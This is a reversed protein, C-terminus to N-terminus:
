YRIRETDELLIKQGSHEYRKTTGSDACGTIRRGMDPDRWKKFGFKRSRKLYLSTM